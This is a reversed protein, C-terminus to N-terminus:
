KGYNKSNNLKNKLFHLCKENKIKPKLGGNANLTLITPIRNANIKIGLLLSQFGIKKRTEPEILNGLKLGSGMGMKIRCRTQFRAKNLTRESVYFTQGFLLNKM